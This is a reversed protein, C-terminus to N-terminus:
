KGWVCVVNCDLENLVDPYYTCFFQTTAVFGCKRIDIDLCGSPTFKQYQLNLNNSRVSNM